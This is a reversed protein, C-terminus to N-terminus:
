APRPAPPQPPPPPLPPLPPLPSLPNQPLPGLNGIPGDTCSGQGVDIFTCGEPTVIPASASRQIIAQIIEIIGTGAKWAADWDIERLRKFPDSLPERQPQCRPTAPSPVCGTYPKCLPSNPFQTCFEVPEEYNYACRSDTPDCKPEQHPGYTIEPRYPEPDPYGRDYCFPDQGPDCTQPGYCNADLNPDCGNRLYDNLMEDLQRLSDEPTLLCDAYSQGKCPDQNGLGDLIKDLENEFCSDFDSGTLGSCPLNYNERSGDEDNEGSGNGCLEDRVSAPTYFCNSATGPLAFPAGLCGGEPAEVCPVWHCKGSYGASGICPIVGGSLITNDPGYPYCPETVPPPCQEEISGQRPPFCDALNSQPVGAEDVCRYGHPNREPNSFCIQPNDIPTDDCLMSLRDICPHGAPYYTDPCEQSSDVQNNDTTMVDITTIGNSQPSNPLPQNPNVESPPSPISPSDAVCVNEISDYYQGEPCSEESGGLSITGGGGGRVARNDPPLIDEDASIEEDTSTIGGGPVCVNEISDYHQGEPCDSSSTEELDDSSSEGEEERENSSSRENSDDDETSGDDQNESLSSQTPEHEKVRSIAEAEQVSGEDEEAAQAVLVSSLISSSSITFILLISMIVYSIRRASTVEKKLEKKERKEKEQKVQSKTRSIM